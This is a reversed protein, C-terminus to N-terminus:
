REHPTEGMDQRDGDQAFGAQSDEEAELRVRVKELAALAEIGRRWQCVASHGSSDEPPGFPKAQRAGCFVCAGREDEPATQPIVDRLVGLALTIANRAEAEATTGRGAVRYDGYDIM